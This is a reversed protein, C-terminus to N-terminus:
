LGVYAATHGFGMSTEVLGLTKKEKVRSEKVLEECLVKIDESIIWKQYQTWDCINTKKEMPM